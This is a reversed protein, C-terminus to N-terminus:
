FSSVARSVRPLDACCLCPGMRLVTMAFWCGTGRVWKNSCRRLKANSLHTGNCTALLINVRSPREPAGGKCRGSSAWPVPGDSGTRDVAADFQNSYM